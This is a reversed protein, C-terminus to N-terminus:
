PSPWITVAAVFGVVFLPVFPPLTVSGSEAGGMTRRRHVAIVTILPALMLVRALKVIVAVTLAPLPLRVRKGSVGGPGPQFAVQVEANAHAVARLAGWGGAPGDYPEVGQVEPEESM